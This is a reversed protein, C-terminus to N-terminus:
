KGNEWYGKYLRGDPWSFEGYGHKKDDIYEGEYRRGDKWSFIGKGHMKNDKWEGSYERGDAWRIKLLNLTLIPKILITIKSILEKAMSIIIKFNEEILQDMQGYLLVLAM